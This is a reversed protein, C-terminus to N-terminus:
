VMMSFFKIFGFGFMFLAILWCIAAFREKSMPEKEFGLESGDPLKLYIKM